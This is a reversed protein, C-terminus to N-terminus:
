EEEYNVHNADLFRLVAQVQQDDNPLEFIMHGYANGEMFRTDAFVINVPVHCEM